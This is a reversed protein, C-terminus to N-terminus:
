TMGEILGKGKESFQPAWIDGPGYWMVRTLFPYFYPIGCLITVYWMLYRFQSVIRFAIPTAMKSASGREGWGGCGKAALVQEFYKNFFAM